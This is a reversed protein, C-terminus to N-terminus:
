AHFQSTLGLLIALDDTHHALTIRINLHGGIVVQIFIAYRCLNHLLEGQRTAVGGDDHLGLATEMQVSQGLLLREEFSFHGRHWVQMGVLVVALPLSGNVVQAAHGLFIDRHNVLHAILSSKGDAVDM